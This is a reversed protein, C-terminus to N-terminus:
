HTFKLGLSFGQYFVFGTSTTALPPPPPSPRPYVQDSALAVGTLWMLQYGAELSAWRNIRYTARLGGDGLFSVQGQFATRSIVTAPVPVGGVLIADYSSFETVTGYIGAKAYADITLRGPNALLGELGIQGGFLHNSTQSNAIGTAGGGFDAPFRLLEELNVYRFGALATWWSNSVYRANFEASRLTSLYTASITTAGPAFLGAGQINIALSPVTVPGFSATWPDVQLFRIDLGLHDTFNYVGGVDFGFMWGHNLTSANLFTTTPPVADGILTAPAPGSRHLLLSHGYFNWKDLRDEPTSLSPMAPGYQTAMEDQSQLLAQVPTLDSFSRFGDLPIPDSIAAKSQASRDFQAASAPNQLSDSILVHYPAQDQARGSEALGIGIVVATWAMWSQQKM